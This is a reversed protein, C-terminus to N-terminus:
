GWYTDIIDMIKLRVDSSVKVSSLLYGKVLLKLSDNYSIGKSMLYFIQEEKFTGIVSGHRAEIDDCDIFMNPNIKADSDGLTVIRTNQNLVSGIDKKGVISNIDFVIKSNKLSVSKNNINSVTNNCKHLIDIKYVEEGRCINSFNYDVRAGENLLVLEDNECVSKNNYFKNIELSGSNITYRNNLKINNDFSSEMLIIDKDEIIFEIRKDIKDQYVIEYIGSCNFIIKNGSVEVKDNSSNINKDIIIKNM